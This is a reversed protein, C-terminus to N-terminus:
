FHEGPDPQKPVGGKIGEGAEKTVDLDQLRERQEADELKADSQEADERVTRQEDV